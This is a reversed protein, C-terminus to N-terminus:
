AVELRGRPRGLETEEGTLHLSYLYGGSLLFLFDTSVMLSILFGNKSFILLISVGRALSLFFLFFVCIVLILSSLPVVM